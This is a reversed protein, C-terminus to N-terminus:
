ISNFYEELCVILEDFNEIKNVKERVSSSDKLNKIYWCIHKRMERIAIYSGKEKIALNIHQKIIDLNQKNSIYEENGGNLVDIINRILWPHGLM